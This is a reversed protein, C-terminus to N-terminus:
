TLPSLDNLSMSTDVYGNLYLKKLKILRSIPSTNDYLGLLSESRRPTTPVLNNINNRPGKNQTYKVVWKKGDFCGRAGAFSLEELWVLEGIGEPM